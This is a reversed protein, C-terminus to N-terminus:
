RDKRGAEYGALYSREMVDRLQEDTMLRAEALPEWRWRALWDAAAAHARQRWSRSPHNTM